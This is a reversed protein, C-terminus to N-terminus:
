RDNKIKDLLKTVFESGVPMSVMHRDRLQQQATLNSAFRKVFDNWFQKVEPPASESLFVSYGANTITVRSTLNEAGFLTKNPDGVEALVTLLKNEISSAAVSAPMFAVDVHGSVVNRLAPGAGNFPIAFVTKAMNTDQVLKNAAETFSPSPLGWSLQEPDAKMERFLQDFTALKGSKSSSVVVLVNKAVASVPYLDGTKFKHPVDNNIVDGTATLLITYGDTPFNLAADIGITAQAGPRYDPYMTIKQTEAFQRIVQLLTDTGGGPAYPVVVRVHNKIPDFDAQAALSTSLILLAILKKFM